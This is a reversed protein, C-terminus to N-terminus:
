ISVSNSVLLEGSTLTITGTVSSADITDGNAANALADRLSGSGSDNTNSVSVTAGRVITTAACFLALCLAAYCHLFPHSLQPRTLTPLSRSDRGHANAM